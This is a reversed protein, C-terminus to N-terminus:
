WGGRGLDIMGATATVVAMAIAIMAFLRGIPPLRMIGGGFIGAAIGVAVCISFVTSGTGGRSSAAASSAAAAFGVLVAAFAYLFRLGANRGSTRGAESECSMRCRVEAAPPRTIRLPRTTSAIPSAASKRRGCFGFGAERPDGIPWRCQDDRLQRLPLMLAAVPPPPAPPLPSPPGCLAHPRSARSSAARDIAAHLLAARCLSARPPKAAPSAWGTCKASSPTARSRAWCVPSKARAVAKPGSGKLREIRADTWGPGNGPARPSTISARLM